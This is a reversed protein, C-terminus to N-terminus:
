GALQDKLNKMGLGKRGHNGKNDDNNSRKYRHKCEPLFFQKVPEVERGGPNHMLLLVVPNEGVGEHMGVIKVQPDIHQHEVRKSAINFLYKSVQFRLTQNERSRKKINQEICAANGQRGDGGDDAVAIIFAVTGDPGGPGNRRHDKAIDEEGRQLLYIEIHNEGDGADKKTNEVQDIGTIHAFAAAVVDVM